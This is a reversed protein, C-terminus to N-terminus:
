KAKVRRAAKAPDTIALLKELASLQKDDAARVVALVKDRRPRLTENVAKEDVKSQMKAAAMLLESEVQKGATLAKSAEVRLSQATGHKEVLAKCAKERKIRAEALKM